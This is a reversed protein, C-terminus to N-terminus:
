LLNCLPAVNRNSGGQKAQTTHVAFIREVKTHNSHVAINSRVLHSLEGIGNKCNSHAEGVPNGSSYLAISGIGAYNVYIYVFRLKVLIDKCIYFQM